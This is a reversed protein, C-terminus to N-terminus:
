LTMWTRELSLTYLNLTMVVEPYKTADIRTQRWVAHAPLGEIRRCYEVLAPYTGEVVVEIGHRFLAADGDPSVTGGVSAESSVLPEAPLTRLGKLAIGPSKAVVDRVLAPMRDPPVLGRSMARLEEDLGGIRNALDELQRRVTADPDQALQADLAQKQAATTAVTVRLEDLEQSLRSAQGAVPQVAGLGVLLLLLAVGASFVFMRRRNDLADLRDAFRKFTPSM